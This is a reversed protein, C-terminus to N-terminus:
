NYRRFLGEWKSNAVHLIPISNNPCTHAFVVMLGCDGRGKPENDNARKCYSLIREKEATSFCRCRKHFVNDRDDLSVHSVVNMGTNNSVERISTNCGVVVILYVNGIGALLEGFQGDWAEHAQHGTGIFDDILVVTDEYTLRQRVIDSRHIFLKNYKSGALNNAHRFKHLMSDGSEGASASYAVFRWRGKRKDPNSDWGELSKLVDRFAAAIQDFSYFDVCDLIRAALDEDTDDFQDIWDRIRPELVTHRYGAFVNVWDRIRRSDVPTGQSSPQKM